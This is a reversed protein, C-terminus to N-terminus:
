QSLGRGTLKLFLDELTSNRILKSELNFEEATLSLFQESDSYVYCRSGYVETYCKPRDFRFQDACLNGNLSLEMVYKSLHEAVLKHPNGAMLIRGKDMIVLQDCLQSAEELYHTTLLMTVGSSKLERLKEWILHRVQPDLGTTPEDLILIRPNHLLARLIVLRRKMGGSLERIPSDMKKDLEMFSILEKIRPKYLNPPLGFFRAYIVLNEGVTLQPDLNNDQPVVGIISKIKAACKEPTMDYIKLEGETIPSLCYIMKMTTTKGAGNPGLFGFCQSSEVEFDIGNVSNFGNYSKSLNKAKIVIQAM